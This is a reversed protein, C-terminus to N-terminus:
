RNGKLKPQSEAEPRFDIESSPKGSEKLTGINALGFTSISIGAEDVEYVGDGPPAAQQAFVQVQFSYNQTRKTAIFVFTHSITADIDNDGAEVELHSPASTVADATGEDQIIFGRFECPCSVGGSTDINAFAHVVVAQNSAPDSGLTINEEEIEVLTANGPINPANTRFDQRVQSAGRVNMERFWVEGIPNEATGQITLRDNAPDYSFFDLIDAQEKNLSDGLPVVVVKPNVQAESTLPLLYGMCVLLTLFRTARIWISAQNSSGALSNVCQNKM